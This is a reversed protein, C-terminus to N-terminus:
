LWDVSHIVEIVLNSTWGELIELRIYKGYYFSFPNKGVEGYSGGDSNRCHLLRLRDVESDSHYTCRFEFENSDRAELNYTITLKTGIGNGSRVYLEQPVTFTGNRPIDFNKRFSEKGNISLVYASPLEQNEVSRALSTKGETIKKGCSVTFVAASLFPFLKRTMSKLM